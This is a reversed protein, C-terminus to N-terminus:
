KEYAVLHWKGNEKGDGKPENPVDGILTYVPHGRYAWQRTGRSRPILTWLGLAEASAPALVASWTKECRGTCSSRGDHDADYTYLRQSTRSFRYVFGKSNEDALSVEPPYPSFDLLM